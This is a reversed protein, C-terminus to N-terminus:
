VCQTIRKADGIVVDCNIGSFDTNLTHKKKAALPKIVHIIKDLESRWSFASEKFVLAGHEFNNIDLVDNVLELLNKSSYLISNLSDMVVKKENIHSAAIMDMGIIANLPTRMDHSMRSLFYSKSESARKAEQYAFKIMDNKKEEKEIQDTVDM